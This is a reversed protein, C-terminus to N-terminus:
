KWSAVLLEGSLNGVPVVFDVHGPEDDEGRVQKEKIRDRLTLKM